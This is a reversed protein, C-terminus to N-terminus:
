TGLSGLNPLEPVQFRIYRPNIRIQFSVRISGGLPISFYKAGEADM